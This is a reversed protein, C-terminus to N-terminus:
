VPVELGEGGWAGAECRDSGSPSQPGADRTRMGNTVAAGRRGSESLHVDMHVRRLHWPCVCNRRRCVHDVHYGEPLRQRFAVYALRHAWEKKGRLMFGAYGERDTCGTWLWCPGEVGAPSEAEEVFGLFRAMESATLRVVERAKPPNIKRGRGM